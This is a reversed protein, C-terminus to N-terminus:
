DGWKFVRTYSAPPPACNGSRRALKADGISEVVTYEPPLPAEAAALIYNTASLDIPTRWVIPVDRHLYTYGGTWIPGIGAMALGCLDTREGAAWLLRNAAEAGHWVSQAGSLPGHRQGFDHFTAHAARWGMLGALGFAVAWIAIRVRDPARAGDRGHDDTGRDRRFAGQARGQHKSGEAPNAIPAGFLRSVLIALGVGSLAMALPVIPMMFRFEKHPVLTHALVYLLVVVVLGGARGASEFLGIVLALLSPGVASWAVKVYYGRSEVGVGTSFNMKILNFHLYTLLSHFPAGWTFLDLVSGALGVIAAGAAYAIADRGRRQALLWGLLAVTVVMNQYRLFIVLGALCGAMVLKWQQRDLMLLVAIAILSGSPNESLCRSGYVISPPFAASLIGCMVAAEPGGLKEAIRMAAYIGALALAVM